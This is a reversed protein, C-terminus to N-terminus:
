NKAEPTRLNRLMLPFNSNIGYNIDEMPEFQRPQGENIREISQLANNINMNTGPIAAGFTPASVNEPKKTIIIGNDVSQRGNSAIIQAIQPNKFTKDKSVMVEFFLLDGEMDQNDPLTYILETIGNNSIKSEITQINAGLRLKKGYFLPAGKNVQSIALLVYSGPQAKVIFKNKDGLILKTPKYVKPYDRKIMLLPRKSASFNIEEAQANISSCSLALLLLLIFTRIMIGVRKYLIQKQNQM